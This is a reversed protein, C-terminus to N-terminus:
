ACRQVAASRHKDHLMALKDDRGRHLQLGSSGNCHRNVSPIVRQQLLVDWEQGAYRVLNPELGVPHEWGASHQWEPSARHPGPLCRQLGSADGISPRLTLPAFGAM